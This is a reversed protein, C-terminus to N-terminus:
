GVDRQASTIAIQEVQFLRDMVHGLRDGSPTVSVAGVSTTEMERYRGTWLDHPHDVFPEQDGQGPVLLWSHQVLPARGQHKGIGQLYDLATEVSDDGSSTPRRRYKADFVFILEPIPNERKGFLEVAFDPTYMTQYGHLRGYGVRTLDRTGYQPEYRFRLYRGDGTRFWSEAEPRLQVVFRDTDFFRDQGVDLPTFRKVLEGLIRFASWYEFLKALDRARLQDGTGHFRIPGGVQHLGTMVDYLKRYAPRRMFTPTARLPPTFSGLGQLCPHRHLLSNVRSILAEALAARDQLPQLRPLDEQEWWSPADARRRYNKWAKDALRQDYEALATRRVEGLLMQIRQLFWRIARHEYIDYDEVTAMVPVREITAALGGVAIVEDAGPRARVLGDGRRCLENVEWARLAQGSRYAQTAFSVRFGQQPQRRIEALQREVVALGRQARVLFEEAPMESPVPARQEDVTLFTKGFVDLLLGRERKQLDLLIAHYESQTLKSPQVLIEFQAVVHPRETSTEVSVLCRGAYLHFHTEVPWIAKYTQQGDRIADPYIVPPANGRQVQDGLRLRLPTPDPLGQLVFGIREVEYVAWGLVTVGETTLDFTVPEENGCLLTLEM